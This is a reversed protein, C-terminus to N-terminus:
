DTSWGRWYGFGLECLHLSQCGLVGQREIWYTSSAMKPAQMIVKRTKGEIELDALTLPQTATYDWTDGPTTQYHWRYAGTAVDVAVISSLYLNDGGDAEFTETGTRGMALASICWGLILTYWIGPRVEVAKSGSVRGTKAAEALDPHEFPFAPNGPVPLVASWIAPRLTWLRSTVAPTSNPAAM